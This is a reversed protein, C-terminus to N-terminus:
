AGSSGVSIVPMTVAIPTAMGACFIPSRAPRNSRSDPRIMVRIGGRIM